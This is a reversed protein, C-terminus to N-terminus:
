IHRFEKLIAKLTSTFIKIQQYVNEPKYLQFQESFSKMFEIDNESKGSCAAEM